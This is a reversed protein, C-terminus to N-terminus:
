PRPGLGQLCCGESLLGPGLGSRTHSRVGHQGGGAGCVWRAEGGPNRCTASSPTPPLLGRTNGPPEGGSIGRSPSKKNGEKQGKAKAEGKGNDRIHGRGTGQKDREHEVCFCESHGTETVFLGEQSQRSASVTLASCTRGTSAKTLATDLVREEQGNEDTVATNSSSGPEDRDHETGSM